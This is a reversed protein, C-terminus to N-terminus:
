FEAPLLDARRQVENMIAKIEPTVPSHYGCEPYRTCGVFQPANGYLAIKKNVVMLPAECRPCKSNPITGARTKAIVPLADFLGAQGADRM